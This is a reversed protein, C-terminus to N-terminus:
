HEIAGWGPLQQCAPVFPQDLGDAAVELVQSLGAAIREATTDDFLDVAYVLAGQLGDPRNAADRREGLDFMLDIPTVGTRVSEEAVVLGPLCVPAQRFNQFALGVQFLPHHSRSRAPNLEDILQDFPLDQNAHADLVRDRVRRVLERFRPEGSLDTRITVTNAVCGVVGDFAEDDRGAVALGVPIDTGAGLVSLLAALGAQVVMFVTAQCERAVRDLRVHLDASLHLPVSRARNSAVTPRPRAASLNLPTGLGDLARRWYELQRAALSGPERHDGLLEARWLTYDAYQPAPRPWRPEHGDRRVTYAATLDDIITSFSWGDVASHHMVMLLLHSRPGLGFLCARVPLDTALDFARCAEAVLRGALEAEPVEAFGLVAEGADPPLIVQYPGDDGYPLLTRLSEHRAVLDGVAGRLAARDLEGSLRLALNANYAGSGGDLYNVIWLRAQAVSAPM